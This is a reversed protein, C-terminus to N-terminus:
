LDADIKWLARVAMAAIALETCGQLALAHDARSLGMVISAVGDIIVLAVCWEIWRM